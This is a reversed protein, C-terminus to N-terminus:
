PPRSSGPTRSRRTSRPRPAALPPAREHQLDHRAAVALARGRPPRRLVLRVRRDPAGATGGSSRPSTTSAPARRRHRDLLPLGAHPVPLGLDGAPLRRARRPLRPGACPRERGRARVGGADHRRRRHPRAEEARLAVRGARADAFRRVARAANAAAAASLRCCRARELYGVVPIWALAAVVLAAGAVLLATGVRTAAAGSRAARRDPTAGLAGAVGGAIGAVVTAGAARSGARSGSASAPAWPAPWCSRPSGGRLAGHRRCGRVLVGVAAGLGASM